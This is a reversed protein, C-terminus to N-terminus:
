VISINYDNEMPEGLNMVMIDYWLNLFVSSNKRSFPSFIVPVSHGKIDQPHGTEEDFKGKRAGMMAAAIFASLGGVMHVVGSGAFDQFIDCNILAFKYYQQICLKTVEDSWRHIVKNKCTYM